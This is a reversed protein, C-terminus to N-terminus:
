PETTIGSALQYPICIVPRRISKVPKDKLWKKAVAYIFEYDREALDLEKEFEREKTDDFGNKKFINVLKVRGFINCNQGVLYAILDM